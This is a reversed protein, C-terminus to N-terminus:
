NLPVLKTIVPVRTEVFYLNGDADGSMGHGQAIVAKCAGVLRGEFTLAHVRPIQDSVYVLARRPDVHLELPHHFGGWESLYTGDADFVQVRNNERDGVLVRGDELLKIGHPTTFQGPGSGPGGWSYKLRGDASFRHVMTNGYGDAVYIDGDPAQAVDTPHNFPAQFHPERDGIIFLLEGSQEFCLVQHGDRDVVLVRQDPTIAIGHSDTILGAGFSRVFAGGSDFVIVPPDSRQCIYLRGEADVACKSITGFEVTPPLTGFPREVRYVRDGLAVRLTATNMVKEV